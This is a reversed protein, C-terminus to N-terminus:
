KGREMVVRIAVERAFVEVADWDISVSDGELKLFSPIDATVFISNKYDTTTFGEVACDLDDVITEAQERTLKAEGTPAPM